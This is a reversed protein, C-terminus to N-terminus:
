LEQTFRSRDAALEWSTVSGASGKEVAVIVYSYFPLAHERDYDSPCAQHDPHSHYFGIVDLGKKRATLETRLFDAPDIVFRHYQEETERANGAAVAETVVRKDAEELRGLLIGCCENPYAREGEDRIIKKVDEPLSIM